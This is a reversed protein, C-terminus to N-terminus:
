PGVINTGITTGTGADSYAGGIRNSTVITNVVTATSITLKNRISNANIVTNTTDGAGDLVMNYFVGGIVRADESPTHLM